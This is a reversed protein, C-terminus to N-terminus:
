RLGVGVSFRRRGRGRPDFVYDTRLPGVSLRLGVNPTLAPLTGVGAAGAMSRLTLVPYTGVVPVRAIRLPMAYRGEAWVLETGGQELLFLTPLTPGGGLYAYRQTPVDRGATLAAHGLLILSREGALPRELALDIVARTFRGGRGVALAQEVRAEARGHTGADTDRRLRVGFLASTIRGGSVDPNARRAGERADDRGFATFPHSSTSDRPAGWAREFRVGVLPEVIGRAAAAPRTFTLDVRDARFYNRADGGSAAFVISNILDARSWADNTFTGREARVEAVLGRTLAASASVGPDAVGLQSRYTVFPEVRVRGTDLALEAGGTVSLGNVRDYAPLRLGYFGPVSFRSPAPGSSGRVELALTSGSEAGSVSADRYSLREGGVRALTSNYVSGGVAVARGAVDAGPRLYLDGTVLVDGRVSAALRLPGGIVVLPRDVRVSRGLVLGTDPSVVLLHPRALLARLVDAGPGTAADSVRAERPAAMAATIVGQGATDPRLIRGVQQGGASGAGAALALAVRLV